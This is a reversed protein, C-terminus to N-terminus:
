NTKESQFAVRDHGKEKGHQAAIKIRSEIQFKHYSEYVTPINYPKSKNVLYKFGYLNTVTSKLKTKKMENIQLKMNDNIVIQINLILVDNNYVLETFYIKSNM